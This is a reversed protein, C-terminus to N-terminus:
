ALWHKQNKPRAPVHEETLCVLNRMIVAKLDVGLLDAVSRRLLSVVTGSDLQLAFAQFRGDSSEIEIHAFPVFVEGFYKTPRRRWKHVTM